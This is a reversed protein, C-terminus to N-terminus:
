LKVREPEWLFFFFIWKLVWNSILTIFEEYGQAKPVDLCVYFSGNEM